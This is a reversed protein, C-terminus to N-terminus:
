IYYQMKFYIFCLDVIALNFCVFNILYYKYTPFNRIKIYKKNIVNLALITESYSLISLAAQSM